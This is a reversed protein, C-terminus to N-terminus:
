NERYIAGYCISKVWSPEKQQGIFAGYIANCDSISVEPIAATRVSHEVQLKRKSTSKSKPIKMEGSNEFMSASMPAHEHNFVDPLRHKKLGNFM